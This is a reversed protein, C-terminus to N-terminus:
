DRYDFSHFSLFRLVSVKDRPVEIRAPFHSALRPRYRVVRNFSRPDDDNNVGMEEWISRMRDFDRIDSERDNYLGEPIRSRLGTINVLEKALSPFFLNFQYEASSMELSFRAVAQCLSKSQCRLIAFRALRKLSMEVGTTLKRWAFCPYKVLSGM